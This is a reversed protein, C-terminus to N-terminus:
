VTNYSIYIDAIYVTQTQVAGSCENQLVCVAPLDLNLKEKKRLDMFQTFNVKKRSYKHANDLM